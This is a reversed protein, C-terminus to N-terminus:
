VNEEPARTMDADIALTSSPRDRHGLMHIADRSLRQESWPSKSAIGEALIQFVPRTM